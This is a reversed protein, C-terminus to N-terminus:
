RHIDKKLKALAQWAFPTLEEKNLASILAWKNLEEKVLDQRETFRAVEYILGIQHFGYTQGEKEYVGTATLPFLLNLGEIELACEEVLERTLTEEPTEGFEFGGGPLGWKGKYPGSKKQTFLINGERILVGFAGYRSRREM